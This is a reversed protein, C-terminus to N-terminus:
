QILLIGLRREISSASHCGIQVSQSVCDVAFPHL